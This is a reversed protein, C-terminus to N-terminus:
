RPQAKSHMRYANWAYQLWWNAARPLPLKEVDRFMRWMRYAARLKNGSRSAQHHRYRALDLPLRHGIHGAGLISLWAFHDEPLARSVEPFCFSPFGSRDIMVALCGVGRQTHLSRADLRDPPQVLEGTRSGDESIFRYDHYSFLHGTEIMWRAQRELKEPLWRDDADLFALYRGRAARIAANRAAAPGSNSPMSLVRYRPDDRTLARARALSNDSSADDVLLHEFAGLTQARTCEVLGPLWAEANYLPTVISVLPPVAAGVEVAPEWGAAVEVTPHAPREPTVTAQPLLEDHPLM